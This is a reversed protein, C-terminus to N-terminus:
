MRCGPCSSVEEAASGPNVPMDFGSDVKSVNGTVLKVAAACM